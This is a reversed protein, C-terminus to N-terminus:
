VATPQTAPPLLYLHQPTIRRVADPRFLPEGAEQFAWAILESCFWRHDDQWDRHLWLGVIASYDYRKGIQSSAAQLVKIPNRCPLQVLEHDRAHQIADALKRKVVGGPAAAEIIMDGAQLAVHSWRSWTTARIVASLPHYSTTFLLTIM